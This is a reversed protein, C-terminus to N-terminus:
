CTPAFLPFAEPWTRQAQPIARRLVRLAGTFSLRDPDIGDRLAAQHMLTRIALHALLLGYVEQVVERPHQSRLPRPHAWPHVKVEDLTTEIEWRECDTRALLDAPFAQEDLLSTILRYVQPGPAGDTDLVYEIVRVDIGRVRHRRAKPTPYVQALFSGDRLVATPQLVVNGKTRGLFHAGRGRTGSIM